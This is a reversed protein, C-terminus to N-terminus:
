PQLYLLCLGFIFVWKAADAATMRVDEGDSTRLVRLFVVLLPVSLSTVFLPIAQTVM